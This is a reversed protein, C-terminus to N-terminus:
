NRVKELLDDIAKEAKSAAQEVEIRTTQWAEVAKDDWTSMRDKLRKSEARMDSAAERLSEKVKASAKEASQDLEDIKRDLEEIKAQAERKARAAQEQTFDAATQAAETSEKRVDEATTNTERSCGFCVLLGVTAITLRIM